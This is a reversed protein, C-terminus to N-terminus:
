RQNEIGDDNWAQNRQSHLTYFLIQILSLRQVDRYTGLALITSDAPFRTDSKIVTMTFKGHQKIAMITVHFRNRVDLQAITKGVWSEPVEVEFLAYDDGLAVYDSIHDSTYRIATRIAM